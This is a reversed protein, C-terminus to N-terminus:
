ALKAIEQERSEREFRENALRIADIRRGILSAIADLAAYDDSLLRSGGLLESVEITYHPPEAVPVDVVATGRRPIDDISALASSEALERWRVIRASLAPALEACADSLLGAIDQQQQTR